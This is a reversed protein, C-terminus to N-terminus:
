HEILATKGITRNAPSWFVASVPSERYKAILGLSRYILVLWVQFCLLIAAIVNKEFRQFRFQHFVMCILNLNFVIMHFNELKSGEM